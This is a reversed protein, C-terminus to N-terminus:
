LWTKSKSDEGHIWVREELWIAQSLKRGLVQHTNKNRGEGGPSSFKGVMKYLALEGSLPWCRTISLEHATFLHKGPPAGLVCSTQTLGPPQHDPM